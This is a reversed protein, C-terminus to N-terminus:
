KSQKVAARKREWIGLYGEFTINGAQWFRRASANEVQIELSLMRLLGGRCIERAKSTRVREGRRPISARDYRM